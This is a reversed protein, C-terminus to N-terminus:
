TNQFIAERGMLCHMAAYLTLVHLAFRAASLRLSSSIDLTLIHRGALWSIDLESIDHSDFSM